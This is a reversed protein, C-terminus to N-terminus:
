WKLDTARHKFTKKAEKRVSEPFTNLVTVADDGEYPSCVLVTTIFVSM